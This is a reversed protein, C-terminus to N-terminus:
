ITVRLARRCLLIFVLVFAFFIVMWHIRWWLLQISRAPYALEIGALPVASLLPQEPPYLLLGPVTADIRRAARAMRRWRVVVTKGVNTDLGEFNLPHNGEELARIRWSVQNQAFDTLSPTEVALGAGHSIRISALSERGGQTTALSVVASEGPQLPRHSFWADTHILLILLFPLMILTPKLLLMLYRGNYLLLAKQAHLVARPDNKFLKLELFHAKIKNKVRKLEAQNSFLRVTMLVGVASLLALFALAWLPDLRVFPRLAFDFVAAFFQNLRIVINM